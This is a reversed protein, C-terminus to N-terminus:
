AQRKSKCWATTARSAPTSCRRARAHGVLARLLDRSRRARYGAAEVWGRVKKLEIVGDGMMGRDNLLDRTPVLWDCVHYALLRERARRARDPRELKPDWWVHYVDLAVGLAGRAAPTSRTASTSRRSWRTSAPATPPRCRICRSSPSRCASRARTSWRPPSATSCRRARARRHGQVAAQRRARRAARRGGAGPVPRRLRAPRTSPAATTRSRRACAPRMPPRFSAAAATARSRRHRRGQDAQRHADLGAAHSRTAGPASPASAARARVGRHHRAPRWSSGCRRPTSPSATPAGQSFDRMACGDIGHLPSCAAEHAQPALDPDRLLGARDALRFLEALHPSRARARSAASWSSTTRCATSTPWSCSAPRTSARRRRSSTARCRCRRRWSPTSARATAPPWRRWRPPHPRRSPTSSASCRTATARRRRRRDARRLQLRRGHVHARGQRLRRRM